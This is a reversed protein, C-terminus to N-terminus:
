LLCGNLLNEKKSINILQLQTTVRHWYVNICLCYMSCCLYCVFLVFLLQHPLIRATGRRQSNQGPM